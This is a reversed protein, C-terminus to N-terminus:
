KCVEYSIALAIAMFLSALTCGFFIGYVLCDAKTMGSFWWKFARILM